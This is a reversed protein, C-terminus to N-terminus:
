REGSGEGASGRGLLDRRVEEEGIEDESERGRRRGVANEEDRSGGM